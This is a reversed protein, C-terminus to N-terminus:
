ENRAPSNARRSCRYSSRGSRCSPAVLRVREPGVGAVPTAGARRRRLRPTVRDALLRVHEEVAVACLAAALRVPLTSGFSESNRAVGHGVSMLSLDEPSWQDRLCVLSSRPGASVGARRTRPARPHVACHARCSEFKRGRGGCPLARDGSSRARPPWTYGRPRAASRSSRTTTSREGSTASPSARPRRQDRPRRGQRRPHDRRRARADEVELVRLRRNPRGRYHLRAIPEQGPYCGKTFSVHTEDLGAEAPLITEDLERGWVPTGAEIRLRELQEDPDAAEREDEDWSEFAEIGYDENRIGKGAGLQLYGRYPELEIECKAAFRARLLTSAVTEALAAETILLFAEPGERVVRLPAVIRSKPTLLLAPRAEGPELSVVENSVM